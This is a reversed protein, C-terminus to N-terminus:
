RARGKRRDRRARLKRYHRQVRARNGCGTPSCWRQSATPAVLFHVCGPGLCRRIREPSPGHLLGMVSRAALATLRRPLREEVGREVVECGHVTRILEPHPLAIRAARNLSTLASSPPASGDAVADFLRVLQDRFRRLTPLDSARLPGVETPARRRVWARADPLSAFADTGQCAPCATTNAFDVAFWRGEEAQKSRPV